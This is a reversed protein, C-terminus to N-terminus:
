LAFPKGSREHDETMRVLYPSSDWESLIRRSSSHRFILSKGLDRELQFEPQENLLRALEKVSHLHVDDVMLFGGPKLMSNIYMFDVFVMPWNHAGDILGFDFTPPKDRMQAALAPLVWESGDIHSELAGREVGMTDCASKIRSFLGHDPAISVLRQPNMFLFCITTNGAGTEIVNAGAPLKEQFFDALGQLSWRDFGGSNWTVGEDWTHIQPIDTIFRHFTEEDYSSM